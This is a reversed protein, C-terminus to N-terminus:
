HSVLETPDKDQVGLKPINGLVLRGPKGCGQGERAGATGQNQEHIGRPSRLCVQEKALM